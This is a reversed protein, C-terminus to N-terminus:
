VARKDGGQNASGVETLQVPRRSPPPPPPNDSLYRTFADELHSVFGELWAEVDAPIANAGNAWRRILREDLHLLRVLDVNSYGLIDKCEHFREPTM